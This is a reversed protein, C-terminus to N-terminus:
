PLHHSTIPHSPPQKIRSYPCSLVSSLAWPEPAERIPPRHPAPACQSSCRGPCKPAPTRCAPPHPHLHGSPLRACTPNVTLAPRPGVCPSPRLRACPSVGGLLRSPRGPFCPSPRCSSPLHSAVLVSFPRAEPSMATGNRPQSLVSSPQPRLLLRERSHASLTCPERPEPLSQGKQFSIGSGSAPPCVPRGMLRARQGPRRGRRWTRPRDGCRWGEPMGVEM